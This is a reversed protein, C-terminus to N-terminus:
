DGLRYAFSNLHALSVSSVRGVLGEGQRTKILNGIRNWALDYRMQAGSSAFGYWFCRQGDNYRARVEDIYSHNRLRSEREALITELLFFDYGLQGAEADLKRDARILVGFFKRFWSRNLSLKM